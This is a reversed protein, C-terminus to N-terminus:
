DIYKVHNYINYLIHTCIYCIECTHNQNHILPEHIAWGNFFTSQISFTVLNLYLKWDILWYILWVISRPQDFTVPFGSYEWFGFRHSLHLPPLYLCKNRNVINHIFLYIYMRTKHYFYLTKSALKLNWMTLYINSAYILHAITELMSLFWFASRPEKKLTYVINSTVKYKM